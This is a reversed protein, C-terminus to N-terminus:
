LIGGIKGDCSTRTVCSDMVSATLSGPKYLVDANKKIHKVIEEIVIEWTELAIDKDTKKGAVKEGCLKTDLGLATFIAQALEKPKMSM